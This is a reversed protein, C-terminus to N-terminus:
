RAAGTNRNAQRNVDLLPLPSLQGDQVVLVQGITPLVEGLTELYLRSRTVEPEQRYERLVASFRASEGRARNVRETAYGQAEAITRLASGEANPIQSNVQRQAENIMREREQRAENVENFAPRVAPPPVVDQMEVTSIRIGSDYGDLIEQIERTAQKQIEVRGITLVESGLMNGVIRRMVSESIDRLTRTPERIEYLFKIPDQIRYQVVWEVDIMNLDGTLMLSESEFNRASYATRGSVRTGSSRFGFEQKLVRETAVRQIQDVGFPLKFHLGPDTIGVVEGFRKIVARQEPQVTYFSTLAAWPAVLGILLAILGFRAKGGGGGRGRLSRIFKQLAASLDPPGSQRGRGGNISTVM